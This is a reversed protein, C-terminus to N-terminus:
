ANSSNKSFFSNFFLGGRGAMTLVGGVRGYGARRHHVLYFLAPRYLVAAPCVGRCLIAVLTSVRRQFRLRMARVTHVYTTQISVDAM